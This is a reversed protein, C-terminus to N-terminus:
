VAAGARMRVSARSHQLSISTLVHTVERANFPKALVDYGGLNLVESWLYADALRSTVVLLPAEAYLGIHELIDKWSGDELVKECFIVSFRESSLQKLASWRTAVSSVHWQRGDLIRRLAAHDEADPSISLINTPRGVLVDPSASKDQEQPTSELTPM